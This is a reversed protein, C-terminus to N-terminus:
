YLSWDAVPTVIAAGVRFNDLYVINGAQDGANNTTLIIQFWGGEQEFAGRHQDMDVQWVLTKWEDRADSFGQEPKQDWDNVNEADDVDTVGSQMVAVFQVWTGTFSAGVRVDMMIDVVDPWRDFAEMAITTQISETWGDGLVVEAYNEGESPEVDGMGILMEGSRNDWVVPLLTDPDEENFGYVPITEVEPIGAPRIAFIEDIYLEGAAGDSGPAIFGGFHTINNIIEASFRDISWVLEHWEGASPATQPGLGIGGPLDIRISLDGTTEPTFYVWMHIERMGTLDVAGDAFNLQNWNWPYPDPIDYAVYLLAEGEVPM